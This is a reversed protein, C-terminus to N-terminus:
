NGSICLSSNAKVDISNGNGTICAVVVRVKDGSSLYGSFSVPLWFETAVANTNYECSAVNEIIDVANRNVIIQAQAAVNDGGNGALLLSTNFSYYACRKIVVSNNSTFDFFYNDDTGLTINDFTIASEGAPAITQAGTTLYHNLGCTSYRDGNENYSLM